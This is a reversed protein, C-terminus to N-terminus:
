CIQVLRWESGDNGIEAFTGAQIYAISPKIKSIFLYGDKGVLAPQGIFEIEDDAIFHDSVDKSLRSTTLGRTCVPCPENPLADRLAIGLFSLNKRFPNIIDETYTLPGITLVNNKNGVISVAQGKRVIDQVMWVSVDGHAKFQMDSSGSKLKDLTKNSVNWEFPQPLSTINVTNEDTYIDITDAKEGNRMTTGGSLSRLEIIDSMDDSMSNSMDNTMNANLCKLDISQKKFFQGKGGYSNKLTIINNFSDGKDGKDGKQPSFSVWETGNYGQFLPPYLSNNLRLAGEIHMTSDLVRLTAENNSENHYIYWGSKKEDKYKNEPFKFIRSSM